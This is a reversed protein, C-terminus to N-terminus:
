SKEAKLRELYSSPAEGTIRKFNRNFSSKSNFGCEMALALLTFKQGLESNAVKIFEEFRYQNICDNFNCQKITNIMQSLHHPSISMQQALSQLNLDPDRFAGEAMKEEFQSFIQALQAEDMNSNAYKEVTAEETPEPINEQSTFAPVFLGVHHISVIGLALVFLVVSTYILWDPSGFLISMWIVGMGISLFKLWLLRSNQSITKQRNRWVKWSSLLIYAVGSVMVLLVVTSTVTEFGAGKHAYVWLKQQPSLSFFDLYSFYALLGPLFHLLDRWDLRKGNELSYRTYLWLFPGQLLPLPLEWGLLFTYEQAQGSVINYYLSLHLAILTLWGMLLVDAVSKGRRLLLLVALFVSVVIGSVFFLHM